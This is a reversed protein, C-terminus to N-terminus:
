DGSEKREFRLQNNLGPKLAEIFANSLVSILASWTEADPESYTGSFPIETALQDRRQNTFLESVVAVVSEWVLRFPKKIDKSLDILDLDKVLLKLYGKFRNQETRLESFVSLEGGAADVSAYARLFDNLAKLKLSKLEAALYFDPRRSFPDLDMKLSAASHNQAIASLELHAVRNASLKLSNTLNTASGNVEALYIDVNPSSSFDRYHIESDNVQFRNIKLPFLDRVTAIWDGESGDQSEKRSPGHVFNLTGRQVEIEGVLRGRFIERWQISLDIIPTHFLPAPIGGETKEIRLGIIQYAGRWLAIDIDEVQGRYYPNKNLVRNVHGLVYSPLLLRAGILLLAVVGVIGVLWRTRHRVPRRPAAVSLDSVTRQSESNM